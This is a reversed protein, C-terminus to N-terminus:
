STALRRVVPMFRDLGSDFCVYSSIGWRERRERLADVMAEVHGVRAYPSAAVGKPPICMKIGRRRLAQRFQTSDYGCDAVLRTLRQKPRGHERAVRITYLTQEALKVAATTACDLHFGLPLGNGHVALMWKTGKRKKILGVKDGGKKAPAFSGHLFDTNWDLGGHCDLSALVVRWIREWVGEMGWRRLRRWVTMPAGYERPLDQWRCGTVLVYLIGELTRRGDPVPLSPLAAACPAV